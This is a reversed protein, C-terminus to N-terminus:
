QPIAFTTGNWVALVNWEQYGDGKFVYEVVKTMYGVDGHVSILLNKYGSTTSDTVGITEYGLGKFINNWTTGTKQWVEISCGGSGCYGPLDEYVIAEQVKDGNLDLMAVNLAYGDSSSATKKAQAIDEAYLAYVEGTTVLSFSLKTAGSAEFLNDYEKAPDIAGSPPTQTTTTAPLTTVPRAPPLTQSTPTTTAPAQVVPESAAPEQLYLAAGVIGIIVLVGCLSAILITLIKQLSM